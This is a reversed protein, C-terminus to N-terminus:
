KATVKFDVIKDCTPVRGSAEKRNKVVRTYNQGIFICCADIFIEILFYYHQAILVM